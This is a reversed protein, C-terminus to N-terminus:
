SPPWIKGKTTTSPSSWPPPTTPSPKPFIRDSGSPHNSGPDERGELVGGQELADRFMPVLTRMHERKAVTPYVGGYEAHADIQSWLGNGLIEYTADPFDGTAHVLSVATEDCSTEISLIKM